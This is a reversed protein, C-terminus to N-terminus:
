LAQRTWAMVITYESCAWVYGSWRYAEELGSACWTVGPKHRNATKLCHPSMFPLVRFDLTGKVWRNGPWFHAQLHPHFPHMGLALGPWWAIIIYVLGLFWGGGANSSNWHSWSAAPPRVIQLIRGPRSFPWLYLFELVSSGGGGGVLFWM